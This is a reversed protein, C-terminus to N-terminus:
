SDTSDASSVTYSVEGVGGDDTDHTLTVTESESGNLSVSVDDVADGDLLLEVTEQGTFDGTNEVDAVVDVTANETVETTSAAE